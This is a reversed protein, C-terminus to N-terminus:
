GLYMGLSIELVSGYSFGYNNSYIEFINLCNLCFLDTPINYFKINNHNHYHNHNFFLQTFHIAHRNLALDLSTYEIITTSYQKKNDINNIIDFTILNHYNLNIYCTHSIFSNIIYPKHIRFHASNLIHRMEPKFSVSIKLHDANWPHSVVIQWRGFPTAHDREHWEVDWEHWELNDNM